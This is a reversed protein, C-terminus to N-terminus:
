QRRRRQDVSEQLMRRAHAVARVHDRFPLEALVVSLATGFFVVVDDARTSQPEFGSLELAKIVAEAIAANSGDVNM